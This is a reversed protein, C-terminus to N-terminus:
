VNGGDGSKVSLPRLECGQGSLHDLARPEAGRRRGHRNAWESSGQPGGWEQAQRLVVLGGDSSKVSLRDSNVVDLKITETTNSIQRWGVESAPAILHECELAVGEGVVDEVIVDSQHSEGLDLHVVDNDWPDDAGEGDLKLVDDTLLLADSALGPDIDLSLEEAVPLSPSEV